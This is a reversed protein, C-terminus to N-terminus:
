TSALLAKLDTNEWNVLQAVTDPSIAQATESGKTQLGQLITNLNSIVTLLDKTANKLTYKGQANVKVNGDKDITVEAKPNKINIDGDATTTVEVKNLKATINGEEIKVTNEFSSERFQNYLIAICSLNNYGTSNKRILTKTDETVDFMDVDYFRPSLVLVKDGVSPKVNIALGKSCPSLLACTVVTINEPRDTVALLVEVVGGDGLVEKITGWEVIVTRNILRRITASESTSLAKQALESTTM